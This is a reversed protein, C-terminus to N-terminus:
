EPNKICTLIGVQFGTAVQMPVGMDAVDLSYLRMSGMGDGLAYFYISGCLAQDLIWLGADSENTLTIPMSQEGTRVDFMRLQPPIIRDMMQAGTVHAIQQGDESWQLNIVPGEAETPFSTVVTNTDLDFVVIANTWGELCTPDCLATDVYPVALFQGNPSLQWNSEIGPVAKAGSFRPLDLFYQPYKEYLPQLVSQAGRLIPQSKIASLDLVFIERYNFWNQGSPVIFAREGVWRVVSPAGYFTFPPIHDIEDLSELEGRFHYDPVTDTM